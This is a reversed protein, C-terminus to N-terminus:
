VEGESFFLFSLSTSVVGCLEGSAHLFDGGACRLPDGAGSGGVEGEGSTCLRVWSGGGVGGRGAAGGTSRAIIGLVGKFSVAGEEGGRVCIDINKSSSSSSESM